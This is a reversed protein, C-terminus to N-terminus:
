DIFRKIREGVFAVVPGITFAMLVTVIGTGGGVFFGIVTVISDYLIRITRYSFKKQSNTIITPIADYPSTGLEVTMYVAAVFVFVVLFVVMAPLKTALSDFVVNGWFKERLWTMLDCAYGVLFMNFITGFGIQSKDKWIVILFLVINFLAQWNGFTMGLLHSIGFNMVSCPDTGLAIYNLWSVCFGMMVVACFCMVMRKAFHPKQYTGKIFTKWDM